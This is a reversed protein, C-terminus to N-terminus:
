SDASIQRTEIAPFGAGSKLHSRPRKRDDLGRYAARRRWTMPSSVTFDTFTDGQLQFPEDEGKRIHNWQRGDEPSAVSLLAGRRTPALPARPDPIVARLVPADRLPRPVVVLAARRRRMVIAHALGACTGCKLGAV